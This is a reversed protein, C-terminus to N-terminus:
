GVFCDVTLRWTLAPKPGKTKPAGQPTPAAKKNTDTTAQAPDTSVLNVWCTIRDKRRAFARYVDADRKYRDLRKDKKFGREELVRVVASAIEAVGPPTKAGKGKKAAGQASIRCQEGKIGLEGERFWERATKFPKPIPVTQALGDALERCEKMPYPMLEGGHARPALPGILPGIFALALCIKQLRIEM